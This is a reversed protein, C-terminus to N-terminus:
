PILNEEPMLPHAPKIWDSATGEIGAASWAATSAPANSSAKEFWGLDKPAEENAVLKGFQDFVDAIDSKRALAELGVACRSDIAAGLKAEMQDMALAFVKEQRELRDEVDALAQRTNHGAQEEVALLRDKVSSLATAATFLDSKVQALERHMEDRLMVMDRHLYGAMEDVRNMLADRLRKMEGGLSVQLDAVKTQIENIDRGMLLKRVGEIGEDSDPLGAPVGREPVVAKSYQTQMQAVRGSWPSTPRGEAAFVTSRMMPTPAPLASHEIQLSASAHPSSIGAIPQLRPKVPPSPLPPNAGAVPESESLLSFM